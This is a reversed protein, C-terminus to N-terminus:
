LKQQKPVRYISDYSALRSECTIVFSSITYFYHFPQYPLPSHRKARAKHLQPYSGRAPTETAETTLSELSRVALTLKARRLEGKSSITLYSCILNSRPAPNLSTGSLSLHRVFLPAPCLSTGSLSLHRVFLSASCLSTGSLSLHRIFIPKQAICAPPQFHPQCRWRTYVSNDRFGASPLGRDLSGRPLLLLFSWIIRISAAMWTSNKKRGGLQRSILLSKFKCFEMKETRYPHTVQDRVSPSSCIPNM